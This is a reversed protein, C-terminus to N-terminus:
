RVAYYKDLFAKLLGPQDKFLEKAVDTIPVGTGRVQHDNFAKLLAPNDAFIRDAAPDGAMQQGRVGSLASQIDPADYGNPQSRLGALIAELGPAQGM